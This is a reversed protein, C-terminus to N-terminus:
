RISSMVWHENACCISRIESTSMNRATAPMDPPLNYIVAVVITWMVTTGNFAWGCRGMNFHGRRPLFRSERQRWMLLAAPFAFSLQEVLVGTGCLSNFATDGM